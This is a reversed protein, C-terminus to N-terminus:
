KWLEADISQFNKQTKEFAEYEDETWKGFLFNLDSYQRTHIKNKELGLSKRLSNLILQNVSLSESKATGKLKNELDKDVGRITIAKM